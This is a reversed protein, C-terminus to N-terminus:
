TSHTHTTQNSSPQACSEGACPVHGGGVWERHSLRPLGCGAKRSRKAKGHPLTGCCEFACM